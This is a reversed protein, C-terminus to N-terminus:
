WHTTDSPIVFIQNSANDSSKSQQLLVLFIQYQERTFGIQQSHVESKSCKHNQQNSNCDAKKNKFKFQPPFGHKRYCTNIM